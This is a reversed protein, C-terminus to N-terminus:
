LWGLGPLRLGAAEELGFLRNMWQVGGGAAGKVLNDLTSNIVLVDGDTTLGLHCRNTGVVDQLRPSETGVAIFPSGRYFDKFRAVLDGITIARKLRVHITAYIGRAHPGSQPVFHIKPRTGSAAESLGAMEPGHRHKLGNYAFVNSRREPHHTKPTHTRGSGTSGTIATIFFEPEVLNLQLSPVIALLVSSTFCGPHGVHRTPTGEVHEPLGSSFQALRAPAGHDHGYVAAYSANDPFRFDASLDVCHVDCGAAEARGLVEDVLAAAAGHPAASFLAFRPESEFFPELASKDVMKLDSYLGSLQPFVQEVATGVQSESLVLTPVFIPHNALIRLLEGAVYGSGGLIVAPIHSM